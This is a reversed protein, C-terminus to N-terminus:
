QLLILRIKGDKTITKINIDTTPQITNNELSYSINAFCIKPLVNKTSFKINYLSIHYKSTFEFNFGSKCIQLRLM